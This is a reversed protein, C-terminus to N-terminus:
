QGSIVWIRAGPFCARAYAAATEPQRAEVRFTGEHGEFYWGFIFTRM